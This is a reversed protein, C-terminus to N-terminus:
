AIQETAQRLRRSLEQAVGIAIAPLEEMLALLDDRELRLLHVDCAAIAAASRELGELMGMEGFFQEPGLEAVTTEGHVIRIRGAVILYMATGSEGERFLMDEAALREERTVSAIEMLNRTSLSEFLPTKRLYLAVEVPELMAAHDGLDGAAALPRRQGANALIRTLEDPDDRLSDLAIDMPPLPMGRSSAIAEARHRLPRDELLPVIARREEGELLAEIAEIFIARRRPDRSRRLQSGVDGLSEQDHLASLLQLLAHLGEDLREDLRQLVIPSLDASDLVARNFLTRHVEQLERLYLARLATQGVEIERVLRLIAERRSRRGYSLEVLLVDAAATGLALVAEHAAAAVLEDPDDICELVARARERLGGHGACILAAARVRPDPDGWLALVPEASKVASAGHHRVVDALAEAADARDAPRELLRTLLEARADFAPGDTEPSHQLLLARLEERAIHREDPDEGAVAESLTQAITAESEEGRRHLATRGALRVAAEPSALAEELLARDEPAPQSLTLRGYAQVLNARELGRVEDRALLPVLDEAADRSTIPDAVAAELLRDLGLVLLPRTTEPAQGAARAFGGVARLPDAEACLDMAVRCVEPDPSVLQQALLRETGRDLLESIPLPDLGRAGRTGAAGLLLRPYIRWLLIAVGAWAAAAPLALFGVLGAGGFAIAAQTLVNGVVGGMRKVPGELLASARARIGERFLNYLVRLAPDFVADDVLKTGALAAVGATLSLQISLGAFGLLYVVPSIAAALPLGIRKFLNSALGLQIVLIGVSIWGRFQAYIALLRDEGDTGATAIDAVYQFQYYLMPGLLANFATLLALLRFLQSERWLRRVGTAESRAAVPLPALTPVEPGAGSEGALRPRGVNRLPLACLAALAMVGSSFPLLGDIGLVDAIPDSAFSGLMYGLTMGAMLPALLRKSQRQHLLDGLALLFSILAISEVQKSLLLPLAAGVVHGTRLLLWLPLLSVALGLLLKPLLRVRDTRGALGAVLYTTGVLLLSSLLFAAPFFEVGVRKAFFVESVNKMSVDAWGLLFLTLAAWGVIPLEGPRIGIRRLM